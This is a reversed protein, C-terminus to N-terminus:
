QDHIKGDTGTIAIMVGIRRRCPSFWGHRERPIEPFRNLRPDLAVTGEALLKQFFSDSTEDRALHFDALRHEAIEDVRRAAKM